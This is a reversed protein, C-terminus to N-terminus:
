GDVNDAAAQLAFTQQRRYVPVGDIFESSYLGFEDVMGCTLSFDAHQKLFCDIIDNASGPDCRALTVHPTYPRAEPQYGLGALADAIAAHLGLLESSQRVGAWLTVAGDASSFRGVGDLTLAFTPAAVLKLAATTAEVDGDGLYHLTLHM